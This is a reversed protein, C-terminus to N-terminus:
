NFMYISRTLPGILDRNINLFYSSYTTTGIEFYYFVLYSIVTIYGVLVKSKGSFSYHIIAPLLILNYLGFYIGLRAFIWNYSSFLLVVLNLISFNVYINYYDLKSRLIDRFIYALFVPVIAVLIRLLNAGSFEETGFTDIYHAYQTTELLNSFVGFLHDFGAVLILSSVIFLMIKISWAKQRVIFYAPIMFLASVHINSLIIVLAFYSWKKNKIILALAAFLIASVLFQRIGNMTTIYTGSAVFLFVSFSLSPSYKYLTIMILIIIIVSTIILFFQPHSVITKFVFQLLIFGWDRHGFIDTIDSTLNSYSYLYYGTDGISSRLGSFLILVSVAISFLIKNPLRRKIKEGNNNLSLRTNSYYESIATILTAFILAIWFIYM